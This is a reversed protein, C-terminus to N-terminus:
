RGTFVPDRKELFARVAEDHDATNQAVGQYTAALELAGELPLDWSRYAASKALSLAVPPLGCLVTARARVDVMMGDADDALSHVLGLQLAEGGQVLRGTLVM